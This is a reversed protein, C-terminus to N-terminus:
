IFLKKKRLQPWKLMKEDYNKISRRWTAYGWCLNYNSFFYSPENMFKQNKFSSGCIQSIKHNNRYKKLMASCFLFFSNNPVTDDELVIGEKENKLFGILLMEIHFIHM